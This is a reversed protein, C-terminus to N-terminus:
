VAPQAGIGATRALDALEHRTRAGTKAYCNSLHFGVTSRTIYLEKAIQAYSMGGSVLAVVARERDSLSALVGTAADPAEASSEAPAPASGRRRASTEAERGLIGRFVPLSEFGTRALAALEEAADAGTLEDVRLRTWRAMDDRWSPAYSAAELRETWRIAAAADGIWTAALAQLALWLSPALHVDEALPDGLERRRRHVWAIQEDATSTSAIVLLDVIDATLLAGRYRNRLLGARVHSRAARSAEAEGGLLERLGSIALSVPHTHAVGTSLSVDISAGARGTDGALYQALGLMAHYTGETFDLGGTDILATATALDAIAEEPNGGLAHNIGRWALLATGQPTAALLRRQAGFGSMEWFEVESAHTWASVQLKTFLLHRQLAPDAELREAAAIDVFIEDSPRGSGMADFLRLVRVRFAIREPLAELASEDIESLVSWGRQWEGRDTFSMAVVLRDRADGTELHERAAEPDGGLVGEFRADLLLADRARRDVTVTSAMRLFRAAERYQGDRHQVDAHAILQGALEPDDAERASAMRHRLHAGRDLVRESAALHLRQRRADPIVEYVAARTVAHFIRVDTTTVGRTRILRENTLVRAAARADTIGAVAAATDLSVWGDGLVALANLLDGADSSLGQVRSEVHHALELPAPLEDADAMETLSAVAHESLLSAVHLPNGATHAHLAASLAMTAAPDADRVLEDVEDLTLGDLRIIVSNADRLMRQWEAHARGLPRTAVAVLLRDGESRRLLGALARVSEADAWQLDDILFALPREKQREDVLALMESVSQFANVPEAIGTSATLERLTRFAVDPADPEGFARHVEFGEVTRSIRKLLRSKGLGAEGEIVLVTPHGRVAADIAERAVTWASANDM